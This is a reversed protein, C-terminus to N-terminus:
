LAPLPCVNVFLSVSVFIILTSVLVDLSFSCRVRLRGGGNCLRTRLERRRIPTPALLVFLCVLVAFRSAFWARARCSPELATCQDSPTAVAADRAPPSRSSQTAVHRKGRVCLVRYWLGGTM